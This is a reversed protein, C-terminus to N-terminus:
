PALKGLQVNGTSRPSVGRLEKVTAGFCAASIDVSSSIPGSAAYTISFNGRVSEKAIVDTTGVKSIVVECADTAPAEGQVMHLSDVTGVCGLLTAVVVMAAILNWRLSM